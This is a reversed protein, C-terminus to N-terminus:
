EYKGFVVKELQSIRRLLDVNSISGSGSSENAVLQERLKRIEAKLKSNDDTM